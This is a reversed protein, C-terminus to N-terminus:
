ILSSKKAYDQPDMKIRAGNELFFISREYTGNIM